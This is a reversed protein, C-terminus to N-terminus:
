RRPQGAPRDADPHRVLADLTRQIGFDVRETDKGTLLVPRYGIALLASVFPQRLNATANLYFLGAVPQDWLEQAYALCANGVRGSTLSPGGPWSAAESHPTSTRVKSWSSPRRSVSAMVSVLGPEGRM